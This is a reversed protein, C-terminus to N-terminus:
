SIYNKSHKTKKLIMKLYLIFYKKKENSYQYSSLNKLSLLIENTLPKLQMYIKLYNYKIM